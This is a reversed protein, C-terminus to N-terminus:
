KCQLWMRSSQLAKGGPLNDWSFDDVSDVRPSNVECTACTRYWFGGGHRVACNQPHRDNDLDYTTFMMGNQNAFSDSGANGWYGAVQLTYKDAESLVIFTSYEAYYWNNSSRSQLDFKLKYRGNLTLYSLLENGLWYNGRSDDFGVKFEEWSRNFFNLGAVNQQILL